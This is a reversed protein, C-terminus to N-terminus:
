ISKPSTRRQQSSQIEPRTRLWETSRGDPVQPHTPSLCCCRPQLRRSRARARQNWRQTAPALVAMACVGTVVVLGDPAPPMLTAFGAGLSSGGGILVLLRRFKSAMGHPQHIPDHLGHIM